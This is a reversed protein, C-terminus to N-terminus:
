VKSLSERIPKEFGSAALSHHGQRVIASLEQPQLTVSHPCLSCLICRCEHARIDAERRKVEIRLRETEEQLSVLLVSAVGEDHVELERAEELNDKLNADLAEESMGSDQIHQVVGDDRASRM